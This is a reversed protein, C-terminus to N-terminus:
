IGLEHLCLRKFAEAISENKLIRGGHVFWYGQAPRNNHYGLLYQGASNKVLLDIAILPTAGIVTKFTEKELYM